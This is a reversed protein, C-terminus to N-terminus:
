DTGASAGGSQESQQFKLEHAFNKVFSAHAAELAEKRYKAFVHGLSPGFHEHLPLRSKGRRSYVGVHGSSMQAIFAHELRRRVGGEGRYTVGRGKGMSPMPGKAGFKMLSIRKLSAALSAEPNNFTAERFRLATKVDGVKLGIDRAIARSMVATGSTMARNLARVLSKTVRQPAEKFDAVLADLGDISLNLAM